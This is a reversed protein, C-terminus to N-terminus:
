TYIDVGGDVGEITVTLKNPLCTICQGSYRVTGQKVCLKDPCDAEILHAARDEIVLINTGGNLPYTGNVDLSYRAIEEGSVRVIACAGDQRGAKMVLLLIGSLLLLAAVVIVDTLVKKDFYSFYSKGRPSSNEEKKACGSLVALTILLCCVIGCKCSAKM